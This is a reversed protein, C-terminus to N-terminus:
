LRFHSHLNTVEKVIDEMTPRKDPEFQLCRGILQGLADPCSGPLSKALCFEGSQLGKYFASYTVSSLDLGQAQYPEEKCATVIEFLTVGYSWVDSATTSFQDKIQEPSMWQLPLPRQSQEKYGGQKPLVIRALGFDTVKLCHKEDVLV